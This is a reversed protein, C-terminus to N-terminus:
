ESIMTAIGTYDMVSQIQSLVRSMYEYETNDMGAPIRPDTESVYQAIPVVRYQYVPSETTSRDTDAYRWIYTPVYCPSEIAFSGDTQEQITFQFIIGSDFYQTRQNSLMNGTACLVLTSHEGDSSNLWGIPQVTHPNYGIIVDVKLEALMMAITQQSETANRNLMEGWSVYAIIVDAGASRLNEVDTQPNSNSTTNVAYQRASADLKSENGNVSETYALFGVKIGNIEKIVPTDREEQSAAAGIYDMGAATINSMTATLEAQTGDLIHDNALTLMDVGCDKLATLLSSPTCLTTGSGSVASVDGLTGEVDAVTYDANGISDSIMEFMPSFDFTQTESDLASTLLDTEIAIEGLSRITASRQGPIPTSTAEPTPEVTVEPTATVQPVPTSDDVPTPAVTPVPTAQSVTNRVDAAPSQLVFAAVLAIVVVLVALAGIGLPTILVSGIEIGKKNTRKSM